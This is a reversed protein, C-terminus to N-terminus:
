AGHCCHCWQRLKFYSYTLTQEQAQNEFTDKLLGQNEKKLNVSAIIETSSEEVQAFVQVCYWRKRVNDDLTGFLAKSIEEIFNMFGTKQRSDGYRKGVIEKLLDESTRLHRCHYTIAERIYSCGTWKKVETSNCLRDIYNIYLGLADAELDANLDIISHNEV